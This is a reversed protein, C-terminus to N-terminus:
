ICNVRYPNFWHVAILPVSWDVPFISLASSVVIPFAWMILRTSDTALLVSGYAVALVVALHINMNAIAIITIGWVLVSRKIDFWYGKHWEYGAKLPHKVIDDGGKFDSKAHKYILFRLLVVIGGILAYPNLSILATYIFVKENAMSGIVVLLVGATYFGTQFALLSSIMCLMGFGDSMYKLAYNVMTVGNLGCVLAGGILALNDSFGLSLFYYYSVIPILIVSLDQFLRWAIESQGCIDMLLWRLSFPVTLREKSFYREGDPFVQKKENLVLLIYYTIAILYIM